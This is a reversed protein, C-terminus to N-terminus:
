GVQVLEPDNRCMSFFIDKVNKKVEKDKYMLVRKTVFIKYIDFCKVIKACQM